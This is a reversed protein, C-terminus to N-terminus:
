KHSIEDTSGFGIHYMKDDTTPFTIRANRESMVIIIDVRELTRREIRNPINSIPKFGLPPVLDEPLILMFKVGHKIAAELYSLTSMLIQSSLIWVHEEAEEILTNVKHFAVM